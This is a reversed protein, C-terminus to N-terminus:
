EFARDVTVRHDGRRLRKALSKPVHFADFPLVGRLPPDFWYIEREEAGQAMPFVGQAYAGLLVAPTLEQGRDSM